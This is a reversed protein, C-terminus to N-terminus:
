PTHPAGPAHHGDHPGFIMADTVEAFRVVTGGERTAFLRAAAVTAFPLLEAGGMGGTHRSGVVFWAQRAEIWTGAEPQRWDQARGLDTVYVAVIDKPEEPLRTFAVADRVSSFWVPESRSALRIQGKPGDHDSLNMGCYHGVAAATIEQPPPPAAAGDTEQCATLALLLCANLLLPRFTKLM